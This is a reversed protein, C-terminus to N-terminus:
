PANISTGGSLPSTHYNGYGSGEFDIALSILHVTHGQRSFSNGASALVNKPLVTQTKSQEIIIAQGMGGSSTQFSNWESLLLHFVDEEAQPKVPLEFDDSHSKVLESAKRIVSNLEEDESALKNIQDIVQANEQSKVYSQLWSAFAEHRVEENVPLMFHFLIGTLLAAAGTLQTIHSRFFIM